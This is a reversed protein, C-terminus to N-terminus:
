DTKFKEAEEILEDADKEKSVNKEGCYPCSGAEEAEFRYGCKCIFKM